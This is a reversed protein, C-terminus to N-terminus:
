GRALKFRSITFIDAMKNSGQFKQAGWFVEVPKIGLIQLQSINCNIQKRTECKDLLNPVPFKLGSSKTWFRSDGPNDPLNSLGPVTLKSKNRDIKSNNHIYCLGCHCFLSLLLSMSILEM